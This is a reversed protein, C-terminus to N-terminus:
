EDHTEEPANWDLTQCLGLREDQVPSDDQIPTVVASVVLAVGLPTVEPCKDKSVDNDMEPATGISATETTPSVPILLAATDSEAEHRAIPKHTGEDESSPPTCTLKSPPGENPKPGGGLLWEEDELELERQRAMAKTFRPKRKPALPVMRKRKKLQWGADM